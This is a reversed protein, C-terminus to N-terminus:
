KTDTGDDTTEVLKERLKLAERMMPDYEDLDKEKRFIIDGEATKLVGLIKKVNIKVATDGKSWRFILENYKTVGQASALKRFQYAELRWRFAAGANPLQYIVEIRELAEDLVPAIYALNGINKTMTM